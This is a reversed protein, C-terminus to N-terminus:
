DEGMEPRIHNKWLKSAERKGEEDCVMSIRIGDEMVEFVVTDTDLENSLRAVGKAVLEQWSLGTVSLARDLVSM